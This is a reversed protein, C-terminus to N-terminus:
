LRIITELWECRWRSGVVGVWVCPLTTHHNPSLRRRTSASATPVLYLWEM